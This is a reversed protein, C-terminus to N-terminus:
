AGGAGRVGTLAAAIHGTPVISDFVRRVIGAGDIVYTVRGPLLGGLARPVGYLRHVRGEPDSLLPFPLHYRHAFRGHSEVTDRSVGVVEAGVEVFAAYRDRFGCAEATCGPTDDRPYFYLVVPKHGLADGLHFEGGDQRPLTFDPAPDGVSVRAQAM